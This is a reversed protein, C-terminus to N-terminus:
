KFCYLKAYTRLKTRNSVYSSGKDPAVIGSWLPGLLSQLSPSNRMRWLELMVPVESDSKKSDYGHCKNNNNTTTPLRVGRCLHLRYIRCGWGVPCGYFQTCIIQILYSYKIYQQTCFTKHTQRFLILIFLQSSFKCFINWFTAAVNSISRTLPLNTFKKM